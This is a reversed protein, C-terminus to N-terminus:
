KVDYILLSDWNKLKRKCRLFLISIFFIATTAPNIPKNSYVGMAEKAHPM